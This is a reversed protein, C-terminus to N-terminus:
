PLENLAMTKRKMMGAPSFKSKQQLSLIKKDVRSLNGGMMLGIDVQFNKDFKPVNIIDSMQDNEDTLRSVEKLLDIETQMLVKIHAKSQVNEKKVSHIM